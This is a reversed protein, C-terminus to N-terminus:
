ISVGELKGEVVRIGEKRGRCRHPHERVQGGM